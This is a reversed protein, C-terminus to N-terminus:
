QVTSVLEEKLSIGQEALYHNFLQIRYPPFNFHIAGALKDRIYRKIGSCLYTAVSSCYINTLHLTYASVLAEVKENLLVVKQLRPLDERAVVTRPPPWAMNLVERVERDAKRLFDYGRRFFASYEKLQSEGNYENRHTLIDELQVDSLVFHPPKNVMQGLGDRVYMLALLMAQEHRNFKERQHQKLRPKTESVLVLELLRNEEEIFLTTNLKAAELVVRKYLPILYIVDNAAYIIQERDLNVKSWDSTQKSKDFSVDLVEQLIGALSMASFGSLQSAAQLDYVGKPSIGNVKFVQIDESGSYLLKITNCDEMIDKLPLINLLSGVRILYVADGDFLQILELNIGYKRRFRDFETDIALVEVRKLRDCIAQLASDSDIWHIPYPIEPVQLLM